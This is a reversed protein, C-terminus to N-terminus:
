SLRTWTSGIAYAAEGLWGGGSWRRKAHDAVFEM